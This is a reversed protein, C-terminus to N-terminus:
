VLRLPVQGLHMTAEVSCPTAKHDLSLVPTLRSSLELVIPTGTPRAKGSAILPESGPNLAPFKSLGNVLLSRGIGIWTRDPLTSSRQGGSYWLGRGCRGGADAGARAGARAGAGGIVEHLTICREHV